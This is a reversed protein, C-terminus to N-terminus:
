DAQFRRHRKCRSCFVEVLGVFRGRLLKKGCVPCRYETM